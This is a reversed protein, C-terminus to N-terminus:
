ASVRRRVHLVADVAKGIRTSDYSLRNRACAVKVAEVLDGQDAGILGLDPDMELVYRVIVCLQAFSPVEPARRGSPALGGDAATSQRRRQQEVASVSRTLIPVSPIPVPRSARGRAGFSGNPNRESETM